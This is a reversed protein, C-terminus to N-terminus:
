RKRESPSDSITRPMHLWLRHQEEYRQFVERVEERAAPLHEAIRPDKEFEDLFEILDQAMGM